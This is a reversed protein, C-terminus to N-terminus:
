VVESVGPESQGRVVTEQYDAPSPRREHADCNTAQNTEDFGEPTSSGRSTELLTEREEEKVPYFICQNSNFETTVPCDRTTETTETLPIDMNENSVPELNWRMHKSGQLDQTNNLVSSSEEKVLVSRIDQHHEPQVCPSQINQCSSTVQLPNSNNEEVKIEPGGLFQVENEATGGLIQKQHSRETEMDATARQRSTLFRELINGPSQDNERNSEEGGQMDGGNMVEEVSSSLCELELVVPKEPSKELMAPISHLSAVPPNTKMAMLENSTQPKSGTVHNVMEVDSILNHKEYVVQCEDQEHELEMRKHIDGVSIDDREQPSTERTANRMVVRKEVEKRKQVLTEEDEEKVEMEHTSCSVTQSTLSKEPTANGVQEPHKETGASDSNCGETSENQDISNAHLVSDDTGCQEGVTVLNVLLLDEKIDEETNGQGESEFSPNKTADEREQKDEGSALPETESSKTQLSAFLASEPTFTPPTERCKIEDSPSQVDLSPHSQENEVMKNGDKDEYTSM